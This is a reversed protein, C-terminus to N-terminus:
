RRRWSRLFDAYDQYPAPTRRGDISLSRCWAMRRSKPDVMAIARGPLELRAGDILAQLHRARAPFAADIAERNERVRRDNQATSLLILGSATRDAAWGLRGAARQAEREYWGLQRQAQGLDVLDTKIELVLLGHTAPRWAFVDMWGRSRDGGVEVETAAIWGDATLRTAVAAVLRAHVPERQRKRDELQPAELGVVLRGGMAQVLRDATAFTLGALRGHEVLSVLPQSVGARRGLEDQSWGVATRLGLVMGGVGILRPSESTM